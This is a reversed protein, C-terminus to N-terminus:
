PSGTTRSRFGHGQSVAIFSDHFSVKTEEIVKYYKELITQVVTVDEFHKFKTGFKCFTAIISRFYVLSESFRECQYYHESVILLARFADVHCIIAGKNLITVIEVYYDVFYGHTVSRTRCLDGLEYLITITREYTHTEVSRYEVLLEQYFSILQNFMDHERLFKVYIDIYKVVRTDTSGGCCKHHVRYLSLYLYEVKDYRKQHIYCEALKMILSIHKSTSTRKFDISEFSFSESFFCSFSSKMLTQKIVSIAQSWKEEKIYISSLSECLEITTSPVETTETTETSSFSSEFVERMVTESSETVSTKSVETSSKVIERSTVSIHEEIQKFVTTQEKHSSKYWSYCKQFVTLAVSSM